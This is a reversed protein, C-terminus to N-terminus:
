RDAKKALRSIIQDARRKERTKEEFNCPRYERRPTLEARKALVAYRLDLASTVLWFIVLHTAM